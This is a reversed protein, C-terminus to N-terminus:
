SRNGRKRTPKGKRLWRLLVTQGNKPDNERAWAMYAVQRRERETLHIGGREALAALEAIAAMIQHATRGERKLKRAYSQPLTLTIPKLRWRAHTLERRVRAPLHGEGEAQLLLHAPVAFPYTLARRPM